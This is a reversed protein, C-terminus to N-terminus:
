AAVIWSPLDRGSAQMFWLDTSKAMTGPGQHPTRRVAVAESYDFSFGSGTGKGPEPPIVVSDGQIHETAISIGRKQSLVIKPITLANRRPLAYQLAENPRSGPFVTTRFEDDCIARTAEDVLYCAVQVVFLNAYLWYFNRLPQPFGMTWNKDAHAGRQNRVDSIVDHITQRIRNMQVLEQKRWETLRLFPKRGDWPSNIFFRKPNAQYLLGHLPFIFGIHHISIGTGKGSTGPSLTFDIPEFLEYADGSLQNSELLSPLTPGSICNLLPPHDGGVLIKYMPVSISESAWRLNEDLGGELARLGHAMARLSEGFQEYYVPAHPSKKNIAWTKGPIM